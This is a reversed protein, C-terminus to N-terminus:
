RRPRRRCCSALFLDQSNRDLGVFVGSVGFLIPLVVMTLITARKAADKGCVSQQSLCRPNGLWPKIRTRSAANGIEIPDSEADGNSLLEADIPIVWNEGDIEMGHGSYHIVAMDAGVADRGFQILARRMDDFSGDIVKNVSFNL